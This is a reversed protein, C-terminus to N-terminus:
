LHRMRAACVGFRVELKAEIAQLDRELNEHRRLLTEVGVLDKGYDEGLVAKTKENMRDNTDAAESVFKHM